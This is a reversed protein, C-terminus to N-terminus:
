RGQNGGRCHGAAVMSCAVTSARRRTSTIRSLPLTAADLTQDVFVRQRALLAHRQHTEGLGQQSDGVVRRAVCQDAVLDARPIPLAWRPWLGDSNTLAAVQPKSSVPRSAAVWLSRPRDAAKVRSTALPPSGSIRRPTLRAM